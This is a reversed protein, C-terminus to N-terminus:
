SGGKVWWVCSLGAIWFDLVSTDLCVVWSVSNVWSVVRWVAMVERARWSIRGRWWGGGVAWGCDRWRVWVRVFGTRKM